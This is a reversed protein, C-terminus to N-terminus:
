SFKLYNMASTRFNNIFFKSLSNTRSNRTIERDNNKEQWLQIEKRLRLQGTKSPEPEPEPESCVMEAAGAGAGAGAGAAGAGCGQNVGKRVMMLLPPEAWSQPPPARANRSIFNRRQLHCWVHYTELCWVM